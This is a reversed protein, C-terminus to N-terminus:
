DLIVKTKNDYMLIIMLDMFFSSNLFRSQAFISVLIMILYPKAEYNRKKLRQYFIWLYLFLGILGYSFILGCFTNIFTKGLKFRRIVVSTSIFNTINASIYNGVENYTTGFIMQIPNMTRIVEFGSVVRSLFTNGGSMADVLKDVGSSFISLTTVLRIGLIVLLIFLLKATWRTDKRFINLGWLVLSLVYGVTSTSALILGTTVIAWKYDERKLALFELPLLAVVFSAPEAFFASPRLLVQESRLDYGPIISIPTVGQGLVYV